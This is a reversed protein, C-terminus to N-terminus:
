NTSDIFFKRWGWHLSLSCACTPLVTPYADHISWMVVRMKTNFVTMVVSSVIPYPRRHGSLWIFLGAQTHSWPRKSTIFNCSPGILVSVSLNHLHYDYFSRPNRALSPILRVIRCSPEPFSTSDGLNERSLPGTVLTAWAWLAERTPMSHVPFEQDQQKGTSPLRLATFQLSFCLRWYGGALSPLWDWSRGVLDHVMSTTQCPSETSVSMQQWTQHGSSSGWALVQM